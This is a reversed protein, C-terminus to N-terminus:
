ITLCVLSLVQCCITGTLAVAALLTVACANWGVNHLLWSNVTADPLAAHAISRTRQHATLTASSIFGVLTASPNGLIPGGRLMGEEM